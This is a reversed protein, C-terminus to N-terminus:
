GFIESHSSLRALKLIGNEAKYILVIDNQVHCDRYGEWQGSLKHDVYKPPLKQENMLITIVAKLEDEKLHNGKRLKRLDRIYRTSPDLRLM